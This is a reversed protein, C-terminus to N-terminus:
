VVGGAKQKDYDMRHRIRVHHQLFDIALFSNPRCVYGLFSQAVLTMYVNRYLLFIFIYAAGSQLGCSILGQNEGVHEPARILAM